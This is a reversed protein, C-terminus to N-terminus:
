FVGMTKARWLSSDNKGKLAKNKWSFQKNKRNQYITPSTAKVKSSFLLKIKVSVCQTHETANAFSEIFNKKNCYIATDDVLIRMAHKNEHLIM